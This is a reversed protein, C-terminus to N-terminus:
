CVCWWSPTVALHCFLFCQFPNTLEFVPWQFNGLWFPLNFFLSSSKLFKYSMLQFFIHIIPTVFPPSLSFPLSSIWLFLPQFKWIGHILSILWIHRETLSIASIITVKMNTWIAALPLTAKKFSFSIGSWVYEYTYIGNWIDTDRALQREIQVWYDRV